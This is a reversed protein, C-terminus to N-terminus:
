ERTTFGLSNLVGIKGFESQLKAMNDEAMYM